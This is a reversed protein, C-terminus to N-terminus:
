KKNEKLFDYRNGWHGELIDEIDIKLKPSDVVKLLERLFREYYYIQTLYLNNEKKLIEIYNELKKIKIKRLM